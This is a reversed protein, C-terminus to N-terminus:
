RTLFLYIYPFTSVFYLLISFYFYSNKKKEGNRLGKKLFYLGFFLPVIPIFFCAVSLFYFKNLYQKESPEVSMEEKRTALFDNLVDEAKKKESEEVFIKFGDFFTSYGGLSLDVTTETFKRSMDRNPSLYDIDSADLAALFADREIISQATHILYPSIL